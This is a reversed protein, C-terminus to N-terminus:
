SLLKVLRVLTGTGQPRRTISVADVLMRMLRIGRGREDDACSALTEDAALEFGEGCDEVDLVVRDAYRSLTAVADSASAHDIANGLAEGAALTFDFLEDATLSTERLLQAIRHRTEALAPASVNMSTQRLPEADTSLEFVDAESPREIPMLDVLKLTSLIRYLEDSVGYLSLLGGLRRLRKLELIILGMGASDVYATDSLNLIVRRCGEDIVGDITARLAPATTVDLEPDVPILAISACSAM